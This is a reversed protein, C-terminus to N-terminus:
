EDPAAATAIDAVIYRSAVWFLMGGLLAIVSPAILSYRIALDGYRPHLHDNLWGVLGSGIGL